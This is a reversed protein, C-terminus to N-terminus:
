RRPRFGAAELEARPGPYTEAIARLVVHLKVALLIKASSHWSLILGSLFRRHPDDWRPFCWVGGGSMNKPEPARRTGGPNPDQVREPDYRLALHTDPSVSLQGLDFSDDLVTHFPLNRLLARDLNIYKRGELGHLFLTKNWGWPYGFACHHMSASNVDRVDLENVALFHVDRAQDLAAEPLKVVVFDFMDTAQAEATSLGEHQANGLGPVPILATRDELAEWVHRATIVFPIGALQVLLCSGIPRPNEKARRQDFVPRVSRPLEDELPSMLAAFATSFNEVQAKEGDTM